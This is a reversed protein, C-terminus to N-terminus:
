SPITATFSSALVRSRSSISRPRTAVSSVASRSACRSWARAASVAARRTSASARSRKRSAHCPQHRQGRDLSLRNVPRNRAAPAARPCGWHCDVDDNRDVAAEVFRYPADFADQRRGLRDLELQDHDVVRRGLRLKIAPQSLLAVTLADRQKLLGGALTK